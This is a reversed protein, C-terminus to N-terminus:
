TFNQQNDIYLQNPDLYMQVSNRHTPLGSVVWFRAEPFHRGADSRNAAESNPITRLQRLIAM